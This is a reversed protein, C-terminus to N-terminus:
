LGHEVLCVLIASNEEEGTGAVGVTGAISGMHGGCSIALDVDECVLFTADVSVICVLRVVPWIKLLPTQAWGAEEGRVRVRWRGVM